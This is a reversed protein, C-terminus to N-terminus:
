RGSTVASSTRTSTLFLISSIAPPPPDYLKTYHISYSTIVLGGFFCIDKGYKEKLTKLDNCPQCMNWMDAGIEVMDGFVAEIKGCSHQNVIMGMDHICDYIRKTHPKIVKRWIQPPM